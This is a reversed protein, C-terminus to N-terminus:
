RRLTLAEAIAAEGLAIDVPQHSKTVGLAAAFRRLSQGALVPVVGAIQQMEDLEGNCHLVVDSGAALVMAARSAFDGDLAKMSLDDSMLLGDFAIEGRIIQEHVIRSISAPHVEDIQAYVVHATMAAPLDRLMRFPLFDHCRLADLGADVVPLELHSDATARGHGPIHKMVPLVGGAMHGEALARGLAAAQGGDHGLARDSIIAHADQQPLDLVPVMNCNIGLDRLEAAMLRGALNIAQEAARCHRQYFRAYCAGAPLERWHPPRLRQVRGGEQDIAIILQDSGVADKFDDILARLQDPHFCNRAFLILGCPKADALFDRESRGLRRGAVGTIFASAM